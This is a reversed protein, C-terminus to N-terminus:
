EMDDSSGSRAPNLESPRDMYAAHHTKYNRLAFGAYHEYHMRGDKSEIIEDAVQTTLVLADIGALALDEWNLGDMSRLERTVENITGHQNLRQYNIDCFIEPVVGFKREYQATFAEKSEAWLPVLGQIFANMSREYELPSM